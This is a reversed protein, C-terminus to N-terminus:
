APRRPRGARRLRDRGRDRGPPHRDAPGDRRSYGADRRTRPRAAVHDPHVPRDAPARHRRDIHGPSIPAPTLPVPKTRNLRIRADGPALVIVSRGARDGARPAGHSDRGRRRGARPRDTPCSRGPRAVPLGAGARAGPAGPVDRPGRRVVAPPRRVDFRKAGVAPSVTLWASPSATGASRRSATRAISSAVGGRLRRGPGDDGAGPAAGAGRPRADPGDRARGAARARLTRDAGRDRRDSDRLPWGLRAALIRGTTTKGTGM